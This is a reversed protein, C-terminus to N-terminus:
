IKKTKYIVLPKLNTNSGGECVTRFALLNDMFFPKVIHTFHYKKLTHPSDIVSVGSLVVNEAELHNIIDDITNNVLTSGYIIASDCEEERFSSFPNLIIESDEKSSTLAFDYVVIKKFQPYTRRPNYGFICLKGGQLKDSIDGEEWDKSITIANLAAVIISNYTMDRNKVLEDLQLGVIKGSLKNEGSIITHAIGVGAETTVATYFPSICCNLIKNRKIFFSLEDIIEDLIM